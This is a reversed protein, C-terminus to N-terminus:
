LLTQALDFAQRTAFVMRRPAFADGLIHVDPHEHKLERFLADHRKALARISEVIERLFRRRNDFSGGYRDDRLNTAPSLFWEVVDDHNAHIEIADIGADVAIAASEGYETVLWEIEDVDLAHAVRHDAYGSFTASPASPMGGQQVMQVSLYGGASHVRRALEAIRGPYLPNRFFGPGHAGVGTPEFGIPLPNRVFNPGGGLWQMGGEVKALWLACHQEFEDDTGILSGNGGGHPPVVLRHDLELTGVRLPRFVSPYRDIELANGDNM